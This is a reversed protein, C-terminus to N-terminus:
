PHKINKESLITLFSIKQRSILQAALVQEDWMGVIEVLGSYTVRLLLNTITGKVYEWTLIKVVILAKCFVISM